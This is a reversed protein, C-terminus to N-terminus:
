GLYQLGTGAYGVLNVHQQNAVSAAMDAMWQAQTTTGANLPAVLSALTAADPLSGYVDKYIMKVLSNNDTGGAFAAAIGSSVLLTAGDLLSAGTDFYGLFLGAYSQLGIFDKGLSTAVAMMLVTKGGAQTAGMDLALRGDSFQLREINSLSDAGDRNATKDTVSTANAGSGLVLTYESYKGSYQATDLGAGGDLTDNGAKGNLVNNAENGTLVNNLDNGSGSLSGSASALSLNEVFATLTYNISAIVKDVSRGVDADPRSLDLSQAANSALEIVVDGPSNVYYLDAGDGGQMTDGGGSGSILIDNGAGGLMTTHGTGGQLVDDGAGGDLTGNGPGAILTDDGATGTLNPTTATATLTVGSGATTFHFSNTGAYLNGSLDKISGAPLVLTYGSAVALPSAFHLTLTSGSVSLVGGGGTAANFSTIVSGNNDLLLIEGSGLAVPESFTFRLDNGPSVGVAGNAPTSSVLTPSTLDVNALVQAATYASGAFLFNEVGNAQDAGNRGAVKDTFTFSGTASNYAVQYDSLPGSFVATDTGAGGSLVDNGGGGTLTDNGAGGNITDANATGVLTLNSAPQDLRVGIVMEPANDGAQKNSVQAFVLEGTASIRGVSPAGNPSYFVMSGDPSVTFTGSLQGGLPKGDASGSLSASYTGDARLTAVGSASQYQGTLQHNFDVMAYSGAVSATTFSGGNKIAVAIEPKAAGVQALVIEGNASMQGKLTAGGVLAIAFSGDIGLSYSGSSSLNATITGESNTTYSATFSGNASLNLTGFVVQNPGTGQHSFDVFSYSGAASLVAYPPLKQVTLVVEPGDAGTQAMVSMGAATVYGKMTGSSFSGDAGVTYTGTATGSGSSGDASGQSVQSLTGDGNITVAMYISQTQGTLQHNFDIAVYSGALSAPTPM